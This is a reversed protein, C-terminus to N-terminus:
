LMENKNSRSSREITKNKSNTFASPSIILTLLFDCGSNNQAIFPYPAFKPYNEKKTIKQILFKPLLGLCNIESYARRQVMNSNM